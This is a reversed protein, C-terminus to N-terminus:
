SLILRMEGLSSKDHCKIVSAPLSVTMKEMGMGKLSVSPFQSSGQHYRWILFGGVEPLIEKGSFSPSLLFCPLDNATTM